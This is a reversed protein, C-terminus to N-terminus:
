DGVFPCRGRKPDHLYCQLVYGEELIKYCDEDFDACRQETAEAHPQLVFLEQENM